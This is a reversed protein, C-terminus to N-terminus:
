ATVDLVNWMCNLWAFRKGLSWKNTELFIINCVLPEFWWETKGATTPVTYVFEATSNAMMKDLKKHCAWPPMHMLMSM